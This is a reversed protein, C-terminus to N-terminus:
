PRAVVVAYIHFPDWHVDFDRFGAQRAWDLVMDIPRLRWLCRGGQRNRYVRAIWEIDPNQTQINFIFAQPGLIERVMRFHDRVRADDHITGYVGITVAVDPKPRITALDDPNLADATEYSVRSAVGLSEALRLGETRVTPSIDRLIARVLPYRGSALLVLIYDATGAALDAVTTPQDRREDLVGAVVDEALQRVARLSRATIQNLFARDIARGLPGLGHVRNEYLYHMMEGSDFGFRYAIQVGRSLQGVTRLFLEAAAFRWRRVSTLPLPRSLEEFSPMPYRPM